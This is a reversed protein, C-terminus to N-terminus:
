QRGISGDCIEGQAVRRYRARVCRIAFCASFSFAPEFPGVVVYSHHCSRALVM